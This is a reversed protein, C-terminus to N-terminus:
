KKSHIGWTDVRGRRSRLLGEDLKGEDSSHAGHSEAVDQHKEQDNGDDEGEEEQVVVEEHKALREKQDSDRAEETGDGEAARTEWIGAGATEGVLIGKM